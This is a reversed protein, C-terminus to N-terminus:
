SPGGPDQPREYWLKCFRRSRFLIPFLLVPLTMALAQSHSYWHLKRASTRVPYDTIIRFGMDHQKGWSKLKLSFWIEETAYVNESFGGSAIYGERLCFIFCGAALCLRASLRNWMDVTFQAWAQLPTDPQVITGGGCYNGSQLSELALKLLDPTIHTDADIFILYDGKAERAGANRARSIQNIPEFIVKAGHERAIDATKDTSNNDVVIVEGQMAMTQMAAQVNALTAPLYDQENYAPIIISFM